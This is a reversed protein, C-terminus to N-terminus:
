LTSLMDFLKVRVDRDKKLLYVFAKVVVLSEIREPQHAAIAMAVRAGSQLGCM